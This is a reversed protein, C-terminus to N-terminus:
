IRKCLRCPYNEPNSLKIKLKFEEFGNDKEIYDPAIERIRPGLLTLTKARSHVTKVNNRNFEPNKKM